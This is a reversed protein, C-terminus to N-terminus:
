EKLLLQPFYTAYGIIGMDVAPPMLGTKFIMRADSSFIFKGAKCAYYCAIWGSPDRLATTNKETSTIALYSGWFNRILHMGASSRSAAADGEGIRQVHRDGDRRDFLKGMVVGGQGIRLCRDSDNLFLVIGPSINAPRWENRLDISCVDTSWDSIRM